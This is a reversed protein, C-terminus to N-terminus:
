LFKKALAGGVTGGAPGGLAWGGITGAASGLMKLWDQSRKQGERAGQFALGAQTGLVNSLDGELGKSADYGTHYFDQEGQLGTKQVGLVNQLWQQMDDGLLGQTIRQQEKQDLGSGRMGGAAASNAASRGMEEQKFKYDDSETYGKMLENIFASPDASMRDFQGGAIDGAKRGRNIYPDYGEHAVGPIQDLYPRAADAPNQGGGFLNSLWSM